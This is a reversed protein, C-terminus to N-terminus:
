IDVIGDLKAQEIVADIEAKTWPGKHLNDSTYTRVYKKQVMLNNLHLKDLTYLESLIRGYKDLGSMHAILVNNMILSSLYNRGLRCALAEDGNKSHLEPADINNLRLNKKYFNENYKFGVTITDADHIRLVKCYTITGDFSFEKTNSLTLNNIEEIIKDTIDVTTDVTTDATTDVTNVEITTDAIVETNVEITTDATVEATVEVTTDATVEVTTDATVEVTTDATVETNVETIDVTNDITTDATVEVTDVTDVTTDTSIIDLNNVPHKVNKLKTKIITKSPKASPKKITRKKVPKIITIINSSDM